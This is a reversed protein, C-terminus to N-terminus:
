FHPKFVLFLIFLAILVVVVGILFYTNRNGLKIDRGPGKADVLAKIKDQRKQQSKKRRERPDVTARENYPGTGMQEMRRRTVRNYFEPKQNATPGTPVEKPQTSRAGQIATGGITTKRRQGSQKGKPQNASSPTPSSTVHIQQQQQPAQKENKSTHETGSKQSGPRNAKAM